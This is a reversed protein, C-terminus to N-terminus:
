AIRKARREFCVKLTARIGYLVLVSCNLLTECVGGLQSPETYRGQVLM